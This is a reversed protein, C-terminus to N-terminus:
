SSALRDIEAKSFRHINTSRKSINCSRCQAIVARPGDQRRTCVTAYTGEGLKELQQFSSPHRKDMTADPEATDLNQLSITSPLSHLQRRATPSPPFTSFPIKPSHRRRSTFRPDFLITSPTSLSDLIALADKSGHSATTFDPITTVTYCSLAAECDFNKSSAASPPPPQAHCQLPHDAPSRASVLCM